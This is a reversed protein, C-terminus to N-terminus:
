LAVIAEAPQELCFTVREVFGRRFQWESIQTGLEEAWVWGFQNLLAAERQRLEPRRPDSEALSALSCQVRIFDAREPDGQEELWDAYLLRPRDDDPSDVIARLMADQIRTTM